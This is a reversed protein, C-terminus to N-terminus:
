VKGRIVDKSLQMLEDIKVLYIQLESEDKAEAAQRRKVNYLKLLENYNKGLSKNEDIGKEYYFIAKDIDNLEQYCQALEGFTNVDHAKAELDQIAQKIEENSRLKEEVQPKTKKEKKKFFM